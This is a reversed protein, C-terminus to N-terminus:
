CTGVIDAYPDHEEDNRTPLATLQAPLEQPLECEARLHQGVAKADERRLASAWKREPQTNPTSRPM